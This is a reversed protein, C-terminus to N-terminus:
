AGLGLGLQMQGEIMAENLGGTINLVSYYLATQDIPLKKTTAAALSIQVIGNTPTPASISPIGGVGLTDSSNGTFVIQDVGQTNLGIVLKYSRGTQDEPTTGDAHLFQFPCTYDQGIRVGLLYTNLGAPDFYDVLDCYAPFRM